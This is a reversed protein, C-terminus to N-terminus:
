QVPIHPPPTHPSTEASIHPSPETVHNSGALHPVPEAEGELLRLHPSPYAEAPTRVDTLDRPQNDPALLVNVRKTVHRRETLLRSEYQAPSAGRSDVIPVPPREPRSSADVVFTRRIPLCLLATFTIGFILLVQSSSRKADSVPEGVVRLIRAMIDSRSQQGNLALALQSRSRQQELEFLATAYVLPEVCFEMAMDDCCFERQMRLSKGIAWVAPHFFFVTEVFTQILNWFYDARRVHALEHALVTELQDPSLSLLASAPLLILPRWFGFTMPISIQESIHLHPFRRLKLRACINLYDLQIPNRFLPASSRRLGQLWWWGGISRISLFLVGICWAADLVPLIAWSFAEVGLCGLALPPLHLSPAIILDQSPNAIETLLTAAPAVLLALLTLLSLLYRTQAAARKLLSDISFYCAWLATAQWCFHILTWGVIQSAFKM